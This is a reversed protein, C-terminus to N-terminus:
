SQKTEKMPICARIIAGFDAAKLSAGGVLAGDVDPCSMLEEANSPKVSGGYQIRIRDAMGRGFREALRGRIHAHAEQAQAPTATRGTGIAWVPEYALIVRGADDADLEGLAGALQRDLVAQTRNGDREALTEGVCVIPTLSAALAARVKAAIMADSEGRVAGDADLPGITHRRESHGLIVYECGTERVMSASVEGTFAGADEHWCNQAGLKIPSDAVARAMPFLYISTPCVVIDVPMDAALSERLAALLARAAPLDLNM